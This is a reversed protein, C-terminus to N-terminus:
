RVAGSGARMLRIRASASDATGARPTAPADQGALALRLDAASPGPADRGSGPGREM